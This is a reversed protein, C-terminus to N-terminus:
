NLNAKTKESVPRVFNIETHEMPLVEFLELSDNEDNNYGEDAAYTAEVAYYKNSPLHKFIFQDILYSKSLAIFVVKSKIFDWNKAFERLYEESSEESEFDLDEIIDFDEILWRFEIKSFTKKEM